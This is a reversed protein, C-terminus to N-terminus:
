VLSIFLSLSWSLLRSSSFFSELIICLFSSCLSFLNFSCNFFNSFSSVSLSGIACTLYCNHDLIMSDKLSIQGDMYNMYSYFSKTFYVLSAIWFILSSSPLFGLSARSFMLNRLELFLCSSSSIPILSLVSVLRSTLFTIELFFKIICNASLHWFISTSIVFNM